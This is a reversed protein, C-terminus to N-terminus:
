RWAAGRQGSNSERRSSCPIVQTVREDVAVHFVKSAFVLLGSCVLGIVAVLLVPTMVGSM